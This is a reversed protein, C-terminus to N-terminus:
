INVFRKCTIMSILSAQFNFKKARCTVQDKLIAKEPNQGQLKTTKIGSVQFLEWIKATPSVLYHFLSNHSAPLCTIKSQEPKALLILKPAKLANLNNHPSSLWLCELVSVQLIM